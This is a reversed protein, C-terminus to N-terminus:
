ISHLHLSEPRLVESRLLFTYLRPDNPKITLQVYGLMVQSTLRLSLNDVTPLRYSVTDVLNISTPHSLGSHSAGNGLYLTQFQTLTSLSLQACPLSHAQISWLTSTVPSATQREQRSREVTISQFRSNSASVFGRGERTARPQM